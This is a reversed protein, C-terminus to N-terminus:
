VDQMEKGQIHHILARQMDPGPHIGHQDQLQNQQTRSSNSAVVPVSLPFEDQSFDLCMEQIEKTRDGLIFPDLPSSPPEVSPMGQVCCLGAAQLFFEYGLHNDEWDLTLLVM